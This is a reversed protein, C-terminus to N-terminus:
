RISNLRLEISQGHGDLREMRSFCTSADRAAKLSDMDYKIFSTRRIFDHLRLGSSFRGSRGTPLVHSPGAVFDGLATPSYHGLLMAGATTIESMFFDLKDESVQLELHEPAIFNAIESLRSLDPIWIARFGHQLVKEIASRHSLSELQLKIENEIQVFLSKESCLLYTKEKGSGHEAQALLATAVFKPNATEDAIVMVESPGPLLDVGVVGFVQRKAENVYANGPGFIKDVPPITNTGYALAGIAQAGGVSYVESVELLKLAALLQPAIKGKENPPTVVAIEPVQAVKALTATMLVTSVLPVNGGPVYLGIRKIPYYKEGVHAGHNNSFSWDSPKSQEHFTTINQIAQKLSLEEEESLSNLSKRMEDEEVLLDDANLDARDFLKTKELLAQDGSERIESLIQSVTKTVEVDTAVSTSFESLNQILDDEQTLIKLKLNVKKMM